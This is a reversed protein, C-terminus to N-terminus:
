QFIDPVHVLQLVFILQRLELRQLPHNQWWAGASAIFAAFADKRFM